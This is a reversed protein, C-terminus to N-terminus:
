NRTCSSLNHTKTGAHICKFLRGRSKVDHFVYKEYADAPLSGLDRIQRECEDLQQKYVSRKNLLRNAWRSILDESVLRIRMTSGYREMSKSQTAVEKRQEYQVARKEDLQLSMQRARERHGEVESDLLSARADM